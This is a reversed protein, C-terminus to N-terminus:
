PTLQLYDPWIMREARLYDFEPLLIVQRRQWGPRWIWLLSHLRRWSWRGGLRYGATYLELNAAYGAAHLDYAAREATYSDQQTSCQQKPQM